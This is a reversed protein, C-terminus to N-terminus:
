YGPNQVIKDNSDTEHRPFPLAFRYDGASIPEHTDGSPMERIGMGMRQLDFFRFGEFLFEKRREKIIDVYLDDSSTSSYLSGNRKSPISNLYVLAEGPHSGVLAEAYNLIVEEIRFVKINDSAFQYDPYKGINRLDSGFTGIMDSSARVDNSAFEADEIIEDFPQADRYSGSYMNAMGSGGANDTSSNALEFISAPGPENMKWYEVWDDAETIPYKAILAEIEDKMGLVVDYERFYTAIRSKLTYVADLSLFTKPGNYQSDVGDKMYQIANEIDSYIMEKNEDITGRAVSLDEPKFELEYSIGLNEGNDIYQQGWARLLDFHAMARVAYAEGIMFNIDEEDGEIESFDANIISNPNGISSYIARFTDSLRRNITQITMNSWNGLRGSHRNSFINDARIEGVAIVYNRGYYRYDKLYTYSGNMLTRLDEASNPNPSTKDALEPELSCSSMIILLTIAFIKIIEKTM